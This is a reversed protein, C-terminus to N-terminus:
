YKDGREIEYQQQKEEVIDFAQLAFIFLLATLIIIAIRTWM